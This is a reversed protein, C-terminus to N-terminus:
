PLSILDSSFSTVEAIAALPSGIEFTSGYASNGVSAVTTPLTFPM